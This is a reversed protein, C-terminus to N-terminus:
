QAEMWANGNDHAFNRFTHPPTRTIKEVTGTPRSAHGSAITEIPTDDPLM